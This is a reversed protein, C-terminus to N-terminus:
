SVLGVSGVSAYPACIFTHFIRYSILSHFSQACCRLADALATAFERIRSSSSSNPDSQHHVHALTQIELDGTGSGRSGGSESSGGSGRSRPIFLAGLIESDHLITGLIFPQAEWTSWRLTRSVGSRLGKTPCPGRRFFKLRHGCRLVPPCGGAGDRICSNPPPGPGRAGASQLRQAHFLHSLFARGHIADRLSVANLTSEDGGTGAVTGTILM